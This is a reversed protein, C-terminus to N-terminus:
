RQRTHLWVGLANFLARMDAEEFYASIMEQTGDGKLRIARIGIPHSAVSNPAEVLRISDSSVIGCAAEWLTTDRDSM